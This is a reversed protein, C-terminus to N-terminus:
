LISPEDYLRVNANLFATMASTYILLVPRSLLLPWASGAQQSLEAPGIGGM